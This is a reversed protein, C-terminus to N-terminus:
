VMSMNPRRAEDLQVQYKKDDTSQTNEVINEGSQSVPKERCGTFSIIVVLMLTLALVSKIQKKM